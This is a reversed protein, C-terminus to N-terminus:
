TCISPPPLYSHWPVKISHPLPSNMRHKRWSTGERQCCRSILGGTDTYVVSHAGAHTYTHTHTYNDFKGKHREGEWHQADGRNQSNSSLAGIQPSFSRYSRSPSLLRASLLFCGEQEAKHECRTQFWIRDLRHDTFRRRIRCPLLRPFEQWLFLHNNNINRKEEMSLLMKKTLLITLLHSFEAWIAWIQPFITTM